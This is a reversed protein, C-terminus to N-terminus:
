ERGGGTPGIRADDFQAICRFQVGSLEILVEETQRLDKTLEIPGFAKSASKRPSLSHQLDFPCQVQNIFQPATACGDTMVM